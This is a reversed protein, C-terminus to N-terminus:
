RADPEFANDFWYDCGGEHCRVDRGYPAQITHDPVHMLRERGQELDNAEALAEEDVPRIALTLNYLHEAAARDIGYARMRLMKQFEKMARTVTLQEGGRVGDRARSLEENYPTWDSGRDIAEYYALFNGLEEVWTGQASVTGALSFWLGCVGSLVTLSKHMAHTRM